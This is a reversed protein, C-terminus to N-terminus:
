SKGLINIGELYLNPKITLIKLTIDNIKMFLIIRRKLLTAVTYNSIDTREGTQLYVTHPFRSKSQQEVFLSLM